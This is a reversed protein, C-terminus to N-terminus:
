WLARKPSADLLRAGARAWCGAASVAPLTDAIEQVRPHLFEAIELIQGDAPQVEERVRAFRSAPDEARRGPRHGRVGHGLALERATEAILRGSGDGRQREIERVPALRALYDRAYGADQYDALREVGAAIITDAAAAFQASAEGARAVALHEATRRRLLRRRVGRPKRKVGVGGRRIAAEFATRPM